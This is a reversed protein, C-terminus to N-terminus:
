WSQILKPLTSKATTPHIWLVLSPIFLNSLNLQTDIQCIAYYGRRFGLLHKMRIPILVYCVIRPLNGIRNKRKWTKKM